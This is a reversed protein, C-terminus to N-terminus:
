QAPCTLRLQPAAGSFQQCTRPCAVIQAPSAPDDYYWGDSTDSCLRENAVRVITTADRTLEVDDLRAPQALLAAPVDYRCRLTALEADRLANLAETLTGTRQLDALITQGTGGARAVEGLELGTVAVFVYTPISPLTDYGLAAVRSVSETSNDDCDYQDPYGDTIMVILVRTNDRRAAEARAYTLSGELAPRTATGALALTAQLSQVIADGNAPLKAAAINPEQYSEPSCEDGFYRLALLIGASRPDHVFAEIERTGGGVAHRRLGVGSLPDGARDFM